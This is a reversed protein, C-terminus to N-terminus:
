QEPNVRGMTVNKVARVKSNDWCWVQGDSDTFCVWVLNHEPGYDIVGHALAPGRPTNLPIPPNLQTFM